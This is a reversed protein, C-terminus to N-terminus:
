LCSTTDEANKKGGGAASSVGARMKGGCAAPPIKPM